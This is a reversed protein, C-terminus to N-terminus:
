DKQIFGLGDVSGKANGYIGILPRADSMLPATEKGGPGGIWDSTYSDSADLTSGNLRMFTIQVADIGDGSRATVNGIAYGPKALVQVPDGEPKGHREGLTQSGNGGYVAQLSKIQLHSLFNKITFNFGVLVSGTPAYEIYPGSGRKGSIVDTRWGRPAPEAGGAVPSPHWLVERQPQQPPFGGELSWKLRVRGEGGTNWYDIRISHLGAALSVNEREDWSAQTREFILKDDIWIRLGDDLGAVFTYKGTTPVQISGTWRFSFVGGKMSPDPGLKGFDFYIQRDIRVKVKQKFDNDSFLEGVLGPQLSGMAIAPPLEPAM